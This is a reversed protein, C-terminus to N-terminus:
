RLGKIIAIREPSFPPYEEGCKSCKGLEITDQIQTWCNDREIWFFYRPPMSEGDSIERTTRRRYKGDNMKSMVEDVCEPFKRNLILAIHRLHIPARWSDAATWSQVLPDLVMRMEDYGLPYVAQWLTFLAAGRHVPNYVKNAIDLLKPIEDKAKDDRGREIMARLPLSSWAVIESPYACLHSTRLSEQVIPEFEEEAAYRAIRALLYAKWHVVTYQHAFSLAGATDSPALKEAEVYIQDETM